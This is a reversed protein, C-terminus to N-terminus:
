KLLDPAVVVTGTFLIRSVAVGLVEDTTLVYLGTLKDAVEVVSIVLEVLLLLPTTFL